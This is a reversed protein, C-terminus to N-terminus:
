KFLVVGVYVMIQTHTHNFLGAVTCSSGKYLLMIKVANFIDIDEGIAIWESESEPSLETFIM